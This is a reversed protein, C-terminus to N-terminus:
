QFSLQFETGQEIQSSVSVTCAISRALDRVLHLGLGTKGNIVADQQYLARLQGDSIGPGNDRIVLVVEGQDCRALWHIYGGPQNALVKVANSTLNQMITRLYNEDTLVMLGEPADYIFEIQTTSAFLRKMYDFLTEVHVQRIVPEFQEMQSKSWLLISEMNDLLDQAADTIKQQHAVAKDPSLLDPNDRRLNLFSILNAIPSRLDHSLIAFFRARVQNAEVLEQNLRLLTVNSRRRTRSQMYILAGIVLLLGIGVILAMQQRRQGAITLHNIQLQRDRLEIERRSELGAIENKAQQSYLSDQVAQYARFNEYAGKYDKRLAQLEALNGRFYAQNSVEGQKASIRIAETLYREALQLRQNKDPPAVSANHPGPYRILDLYAIGLNGLNTVAEQHSPNVQEWLAKAKLAYAIRQGLDRQMAVSLNGYTKALGDRNDVQRHLALAQMGYQRAKPWDKMQTYLAAMSTMSAALERRANIDPNGQKQRLSLARLGFQLAKPFNQQIRYIESINDLCMGILYNDGTMEAHKLGEFYYRTAAPYDSRLNHETAGMNNTTAALNWHDDLQKYIAIAKRYYHLSSDFDGKESFARGIYTNFVGIGRPWKMRTTHRLGTRGYVLAQDVNVFFLEDVIVRYLRAKATDNRSRPIEQLLSDILAQGQKQAQATAPLLLASFLLLQWKLSDM